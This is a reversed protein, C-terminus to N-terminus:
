VDADPRHQQFLLAGIQGATSRNYCVSVMSSGQVRTAKISMQVLGAVQHHAKEQLQLLEAPYRCSV